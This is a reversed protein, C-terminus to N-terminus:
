CDRVFQNSHVLQHAVKRIPDVQAWNAAAELSQNMVTNCLAQVFSCTAREAALRAWAEEDYLVSLLASVANIFHAFLKQRLKEEFTVTLGAAAAAQM